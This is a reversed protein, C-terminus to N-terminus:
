EYQPAEFSTPIKPTDPDTHKFELSNSKVSVSGHISITCKDPNMCGRNRMMLQDGYLEWLGSKGEVNKNNEFALLEYTGDAKIDFTWNIGNDLTQWENVLDTKKVATVSKDKVTCNMAKGKSSAITNDEGVQYSFMTYVSKDYYAPRMLLTSRQIDYHGGMWSSVKEQVVNELIYSNDFFTFTRTTDGDACSYIKNAIVESKSVKGSQLAVKAEVAESYSDSGNVSYKLVGDKDVIFTISFGKEVEGMIKKAKPDDIYEMGAEGKVFTVQGNAFDSYTIVWLTDPIRLGFLGQKSGTSLYIKEGFLELEMNKKLEDMSAVHEGDKAVFSSSSKPEEKSSSSKEDKVVSSSSEDKAVSSSSKDDKSASSNKEDKSDSSKKNEKASSSSKADSKNSSSSVDLCDDLTECDDESSSSIEKQNDNKPSSPSDDDGCAAFLFASSILLALIKKKNM